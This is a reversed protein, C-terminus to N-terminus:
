ITCIKNEPHEECLAAKLATIEQKLNQVEKILPTILFEYNIGAPIPKGTNADIALKYGVVCSYTKGDEDVRDGWIEERDYFVANPFLENVEEAILGMQDKAGDIKDFTVPRLDYVKSSEEVTIDEVNEKFRISSSDYGIQGTTSDWYTARLNGLADDVANAMIISGDTGLVIQDTYTSTYIHIPKASQTGTNLANIRYYANTKDWAFQLGHRNVYQTPTGYGYLIWQAHDTGDGDKTFLNIRTPQGSTQSQIGLDTTGGGAGLNWNQSPNTVILTNATADGTTTLNESGIDITTNANSGDIALAGIEALSVSHPNGSTLQSHSYATDWNTNETTSVHVSNGGAIQSHDYATKANAITLSNTGDDTLNSPIWVTGSSVKFDMAGFGVSFFHGAGGGGETYDEGVVITNSVNTYVTDGIAIAYNAAATCDYGLAINLSTASCFDGLAIGSGSTSASTGIAVGNPGASASAGLQLRFTSTAYYNTAYFNTSYVNSAGTIQNNGMAINGAMTGGALPLYGSQLATHEGSTLHYYQDVTGGQLNSLNNHNAALAYGFTTGFATKVSIPATVGQKIIIRGVLIGNEYWSTPFVPIDGSEAESATNYQTQPYIVMLQGNGGGGNVELFIWFNVYKNNDLGHLTGSNDDYYDDIDTKAATRTWGTGGDRYFAYFTDSDSCDKATILFENLRSWVTGATLTPKRTTNTSSTGIILGGVYNDRVTYGEAQFREIINTIGDTTWWPNNMIYLDGSQNIVSGLPFKTDYDWSNSEQSVVTPPDGYAVGIYRVSNTPISIGNSASWDFSLLEATDDDTAKIFGTGAAVNVTESGADSIAGGTARGASNILNLAQCLNTWTPTGIAPIGIKTCGSSGSATSLFSSGTLQVEAIGNM